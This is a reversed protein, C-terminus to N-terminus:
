LLRRTVVPLREGGSVGVGGPFVCSLTNESLNMQVQQYREGECNQDPNKKITKKEIIFSM